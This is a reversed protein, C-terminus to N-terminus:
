RWSRDKNNIFLSGTFRGQGQFWRKCLFQTWLSSYALRSIKRQINKGLKAKSEGWIDSNWARQRENIQTQTHRQRDTQRDTHTERDKDTDTHTHRPDCPVGLTGTGLGRDEVTWRCYRFQEAPCVPHWLFLNTKYDYSMDTTATIIDNSFAANVSTQLSM